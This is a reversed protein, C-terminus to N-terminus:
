LAGTKGGYNESMEGITEETIVAVVNPLRDHFPAGGRHEGRVVRCKAAIDCDLNQTRLAMQPALVHKAEDPFRLNGALQLMGANEGDIFKAHIVLTLKEVRRAKDYPLTEAASEIFDGGQM